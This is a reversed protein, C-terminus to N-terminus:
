RCYLPSTRHLFSSDGEGEVVGKEGARNDALSLSALVSPGRLLKALLQVGASTIANHSLDLHSLTANPLLGSMLVLLMNDDIANSPLSLSTLTDTLKICRALSEADAIRMGFLGRDYSCPTSSSPTCLNLPGGRARRGEDYRMGIHRMGYTLSLSTLNPLRSMVLELDCHSPLQLLPLLPPPHTDEVVRLWECM